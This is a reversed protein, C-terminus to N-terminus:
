GEVLGLLQKARSAGTLDTLQDGVRPRKRFPATGVLIVGRAEIGEAQDVFPTAFSGNVWSM